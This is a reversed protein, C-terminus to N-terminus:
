RNAEPACRKCYRCRKTNFRLGKKEGWNLLDEITDATLKSYANGTRPNVTSSHSRDPLKCKATHVLFYSVDDPYYLNAQFGAQHTELWRNYGDDNDIWHQATSM